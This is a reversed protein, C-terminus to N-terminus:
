QLWDLITKTVSSTDLGCMSLINERDGYAYCYKDQIGIRKLPLTEDNDAMIEAVISGVGGSLLHEELTVVRQLNKSHELLLKENVPKLRYIDLVAAEISYNTLKDSVELAKHVMNGTSIICIDKGSRLSSLGESFNTDRTYLLPQVQRDLRVYSPGSINCSIKAFEAAMISDSPSLITMNPLARMITIDETSHHTPGSDDYGFGAGVGVITVPTNMLSLDVKIMEYCRSTAFPMIAYIFVKKGSLALGTAVTVMNEEAIGVNIFQTSLDRRFKDLSPAGMDASVLIINRDKKAIEYLKDFFTDRMTINKM